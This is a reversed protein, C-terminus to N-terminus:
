AGKKRRKLIVDAAIVAHGPSIGDDRPREIIKIIFDPKVQIKKRRPRNSKLRKENKSAM